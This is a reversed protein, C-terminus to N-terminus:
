TEADCVGHEVLAIAERWLSHQLRNGVFGPVDKKVHVPMKGAAKHLAITWDIAAPSTGQTGIVEVLPVLYPPNWGYTGLARSRDRLGDMIKTIPIVSTNSALITRPGVYTEIEVFLKQKLPLDELVAEVVYDAERVTAALDPTPLVREVASPDDGLDKLNALIRAKASDLNAAVSDYISVDHGALAFVQAIGHGMLGAGIVAIRAKAMRMGGHLRRRCLPYPRHLFGLGQVRSVVVARRPRVARRASRQARPHSLGQACGALSRHGRVDMADATLSVRDARARQRYHRQRGMRLGAGQHHRRGGVELRLLRHIRRSPGSTRAGVVDINSERRPGAQADAARCRARDALVADRQRGHRRSFGGAEPRRDEVGQETRVRGRPYRRPRIDQGGCRCDGRLEGGLEAAQGGDRNQRRATRLRDRSEETRRCQQRLARRQRRRRRAGEGG